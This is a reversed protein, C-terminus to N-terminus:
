WILTNESWTTNESCSWLVRVIHSCWDTTLIQHDPITTLADIPLSFKIIQYHACSRYQSDSSRTTLADIPLSFRIIQYHCCRRTTLIPLDPLSFMSQYHSNSSRATVIYDRTKKFPRINCIHHCWTIWGRFPPNPGAPARADVGRPAQQITRWRLKVWCGSKQFFDCYLHLYKIKLPPPQFNGSWLIRILETCPDGQHLHYDKLFCAVIVGGGTGNWYRKRIWM